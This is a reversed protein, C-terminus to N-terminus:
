AGLSFANFIASRWFPILSFGRSVLLTFYEAHYPRTRGQHTMYWLQTPAWAPSDQAFFPARKAETAATSAAAAFCSKPILKVDLGSGPSRTVYSKGSAGPAKLWMPRNTFHVTFPFVKWAMSPFVDVLEFLLPPSTISRVRSTESSCRKM